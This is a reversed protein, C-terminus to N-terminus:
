MLLITEELMRDLVKHNNGCFLKM